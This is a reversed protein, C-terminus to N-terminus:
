EIIPINKSKQYEKYPRNNPFPQSEKLSELIVYASRSKNVLFKKQGILLYWYDWRVFVWFM